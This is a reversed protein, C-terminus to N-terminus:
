KDPANSIRQLFPLPQAQHSEPGERYALSGGPIPPVGLGTLGDLDFGRLGHPELRALGQFVGDALGEGCPTAPLVRFGRPSGWPKRVKRGPPNSPNWLNM